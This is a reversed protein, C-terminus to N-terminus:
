FFFSLSHHFYILLTGLILIQCKLKLSLATCISDYQVYTHVYTILQDKLIADLQISFKFYKEESLSVAYLMRIIQKQISLSHLTAGSYKTKKLLFQMTLVPISQKGSFFSYVSVCQFVKKETLAVANLVVLLRKESFYVAYLQVPISQKRRPGSRTFSISFAQPPLRLFSSRSILLEKVNTATIQLLLLLIYRWFSGLFTLYNIGSIQLM